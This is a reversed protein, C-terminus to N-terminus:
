HTLYKRGKARRRELIKRGNRSRLRALFGHRRKRIRQSPQYETGRSKHRTQLLCPLPLPLPLSLSPTAFTPRGTSLLSPLAQRLITPTSRVPSLKSWEPMESRAICSRSSLSVYSPRPPHALVRALAPPIRPMGFKPFSSSLTRSAGKIKKCIQTEFTRLACLVTVDDVVRIRQFDSYFKILTLVSLITISRVSKM